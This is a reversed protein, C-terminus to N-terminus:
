FRKLPDELNELGRLLVCVICKRVIWNFGEAAVSPM